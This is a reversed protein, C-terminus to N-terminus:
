RSGAIIPEQDLKAGPFQQVRDRLARWYPQWSAKTGCTQIWFEFNKSAKIYDVYVGITYADNNLGWSKIRDSDTGGGYKFREKVPVIAASEILQVFSGYDAEPVKVVLKNASHTEGKCILVDARAGWIPMFTLLYAFIAVAIKPM